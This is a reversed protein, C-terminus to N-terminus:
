TYTHMFVGEGESGSSSCLDIVSETRERERREKEREAKRKSRSRKPVKVRSHVQYQHTVQDYEYYTGYDSDFYLQTEQLFVNVYLLSDIGSM